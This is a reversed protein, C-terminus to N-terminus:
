YTIISNIHSKYYKFICGLTRWHQFVNGKHVYRRSGLYNFTYRPLVPASTSSTEVPPVNQDQVFFAQNLNPMYFNSNLGYPDTLRSNGPSAPSSTEIVQGQESPCCFSRCRTYVLTRCSTEETPLLAGIVPTNFQYMGSTIQSATSTDGPIWPATSGAFM